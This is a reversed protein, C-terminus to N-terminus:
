DLLLTLVTNKKLLNVLFIKCFALFFSPHLEITVAFCFIKMKSKLTLSDLRCRREAGFQSPLDLVETFECLTRNIYCM